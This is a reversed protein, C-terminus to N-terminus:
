MNEVFFGVDWSEIYSFNFGQDEFLENVSEIFDDIGGLAEDLAEFLRKLRISKYAAEIVYVYNEHMEEIYEIAEELLGDLPKHFTMTKRVAIIKNMTAIVEEATQILINCFEKEVELDGIKKNKLAIIDNQLTLLVEM